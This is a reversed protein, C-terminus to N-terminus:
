KAKFSRKIFIEVAGARDAISFHMTVAAALNAKTVKAEATRESHKLECLKPQFARVTANCPLLLNWELRLIM